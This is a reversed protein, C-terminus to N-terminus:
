SDGATSGPDASSPDNLKFKNIADSVKISKIEDIQLLSKLSQVVISEADVLYHRRLAGRTDSVGWGDTGLSVYNQKLYPRIQEPVIRMWDSVAVVPGKHEKLLHSIFPKNNENELLNKREVELGDRRLENWSTVSYVDASVEFDKELIEQAKLAWPMAVGSAMIAIKSYKSKFKSESYLYAGKLLHETNINKPEEPQLYPENYVTMYYYINEPNEGYM